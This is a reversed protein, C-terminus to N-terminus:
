QIQDSIKGEEPFEEVIVLIYNEMVVNDVKELYSYQLRAEPNLKDNYEMQSPIDIEFFDEDTQTQWVPGVIDEQLAEFTEDIDVTAEDDQDNSLSSGPCPPPSLM